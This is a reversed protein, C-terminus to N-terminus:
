SAISQDSPNREQQQSITNTNLTIPPIHNVPIKEEAKGKGQFRRTILILHYGFQTKVPGHVKGVEKEFCVQDFEKVMMGPKFTGLNGGRAASPCQSVKTALESFATSLDGPPVAELEKKVIALKEPADASTMLIHKASAEKDLNTFFRFADEFVNMQLRLLGSSSGTVERRSIGILQSSRFASSIANFLFLALLLATNRRLSIM